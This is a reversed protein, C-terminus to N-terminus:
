LHASSNFWARCKGGSFISGAADILRGTTPLIPRWGLRLYMARIPDRAGCRHNVEHMCSSTAMPVTANWQWIQELDQKCTMNVCDLTQERVAEDLLLTIIYQLQDLLREAQQKSMSSTNFRLSLRARAERELICRVHTLGPYKSPLGTAEDVLEVVTQFDCAFSAEDSLSMIWHLGTRGFKAISHGQSEVKRLLEIVQSRM